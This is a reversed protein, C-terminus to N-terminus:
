KAHIINHLRDTISTFITTMVKTMNSFGSVVPVVSAGVMATGIVDAGVVAAGVM